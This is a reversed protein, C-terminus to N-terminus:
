VLVLFPNIRDSKVVKVDDIGHVLLLRVDMDDLNEVAVVAAIITTLLCWM